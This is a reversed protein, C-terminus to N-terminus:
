KVWVYFLLLFADASREAPLAEYTTATVTIRTKGLGLIFDSPVSIEEGPLLNPITGSTNGGALVMGGELKINYEVNFADVKGTNKISVITKGLGGTIKTISLVPVEKTKFTWTPGTTTYGYDDIADVRWYYTTNPALGVPKFSTELQHTIVNPPNPDTGLYVDYYVVDGEDPDGGTWSLTVKVSVDESNNEPYPESPLYPTRDDRTMFTWTPGTTTYGYSDIADIRWYYRTNYELRFLEYNIRLQEAEFPGIKEIFPPNLEEGLYIDYYVTEELDPDGGNWSLIISLNVGVSNNEPYPDNPLYPTHHDFSSGTNESDDTECKSDANVFAACVGSIMLMCLVISMIKNRM